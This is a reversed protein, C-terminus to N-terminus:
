QHKSRIIAVKSTIDGNNIMIIKDNYFKMKFGNGSMAKYIGVFYDVPFYADTKYQVTSVNEDIIISGNDASQNEDGFYIYTGIGDKYNIRFLKENVLSSMRSVDKIIGDDIIDGDGTFQNLAIKKKTYDALLEQQNRLLSYNQLFHTLKLRGNKFEITNPYNESDYGMKLKFNDVTEPNYFSGIISHMSNWSRLSFEKEMYGEENSKVFVYALDDDSHCSICCNNNQSSYVVVTKLELKSLLKDADILTKKLM